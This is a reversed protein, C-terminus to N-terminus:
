LVSLNTREAAFSKSIKGMWKGVFYILFIMSLKEFSVCARTRM